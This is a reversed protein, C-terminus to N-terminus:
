IKEGECLLVISIKQFNGDPFKLENIANIIKINNYVIGEYNNISILCDNIVHKHDVPRNIDRTSFSFQYAFFTKKM